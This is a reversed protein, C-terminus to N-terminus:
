EEKPKQQQQQQQQQQQPRPSPKLMIATLIVGAFFGYLFIVAGMITKNTVIDIADAALRAAQVLLPDYWDPKPSFFAMQQGTYGGKAYAILADVTRERASYDYAAKNPADLFKITPFGRM